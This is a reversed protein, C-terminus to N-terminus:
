AAEARRAATRQRQERRFIRRRAAETMGGWVGFAERNAMAHDLCTQRVPCSGCIAVAARIDAEETSYFREIDAGRCAARLTWDDNRQM